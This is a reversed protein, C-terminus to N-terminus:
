KEEQLEKNEKRTVQTEKMLNEIHSELKNLKQEVNMQVKRKTKYRLSAKKNVENNNKM